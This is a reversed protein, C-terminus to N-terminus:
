TDMILFEYFGQLWDSDLIRIASQLTHSPVYLATIMYILVVGLAALARTKAQVTIM